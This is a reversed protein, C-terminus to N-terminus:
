SSDQHKPKSTTVCKYQTIVFFHKVGAPRLLLSQHGHLGPMDSANAYLSNTAMTHDKPRHHLAHELQSYCRAMADTPSCCHPPCAPVTMKAIYVNTTPGHSGGILTM